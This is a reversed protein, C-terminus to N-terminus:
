LIRYNRACSICSFVAKVIDFDGPLDLISSPFNKWLVTEKGYTGRKTDEWKFGQALAEKKTLPFEEMATTENYGFLMLGRGFFEGYKNEKKLNAVIESRLRDYEEKTYQKNLICYAGKKIAMCGLLYNGNPCNFSYEVFNSSWCNHCCICNSAELGTNTSNYIREATRGSTHCDMCDRAERWVHCSYANDESDYSHFCSRNNKVSVQYNGTSNKSMYIEAYKRPFKQFFEAFEKKFDEVGEYTDLHLGALKKKYEEKEYQKNFICNSQNRLNVCGVCDVCGRCNLLFACDTSNYCSRSYKLGYSDHCDDVDYSREVQHTFSVDVCDKTKQIWYCHICDENNSSEVIMYCRNCDAVYNVYQCDINRM